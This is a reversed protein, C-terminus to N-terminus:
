HIASFNLVRTLPVTQESTEAARVSAQHKRAQELRHVTQESTEAARVSAKLKRGQELRHM